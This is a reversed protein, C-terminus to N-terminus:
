TAFRAQREWTGDKGRRLVHQQDVYLLVTEGMEVLVHKFDQPDPIEKGYRYILIRYTETGSLETRAQQQAARLDADAQRLKRFSAVAWESKALQLRNLALEKTLEPSLKDKHEVGVLWHEKKFYDSERIGLAWYVAALAVLRSTCEKLDVRSTLSATLKGELNIYDVHAINPYRMKDKGEHKVMTPGRVGDWPMYGGGEVEASGIEEDTLPVIAPWPWYGGQPKKAPQFVRTADPAVAPWFSGLAACLKADEIFPTGLGYNALYLRSGTVSKVSDQAFDWGPDFVGNSGDPLRAFFPADAAPPTQKKATRDLPHSVISTVTDDSITFGAPLTINAAMRRDSLALPAICWASQRIPEPAEREWWETLDGQSFAPFFDPPAIGVYAPVNLAIEDAIQPCAAAVWGDGTFDIYHQARYGGEKLIDMLTREENLDELRGDPLQKHRANIYEPVTRALKPNLGDMYGIYDKFASDVADPVIQLSSFWLSGDERTFKGSVEYGLPKGQYMAKEFLPHAKPEILGPGYQADKTFGAIIEDRMVFPFNERDHQNWNTGYGGEEMFQHLKRLKENVFHADLSLDLNRGRICEPGAFLKHLPVWFQRDDDFEHPKGMPGFSPDPGECRMAIYAAFRTPLVRFAFPNADDLPAFDRRKADYLPGTTGTRATATRAFCLDAHKGQVTHNMSRYERCFVVVGLPRGGARERLEVLTPPRVGYVYSEVADLEALTPFAALPKGAGDQTVNASALAHFLLSLAPRGAEIGRRGEAAFDEFGPVGRNITTLTKALEPGLNAASLDLAGGSVKLLLARWGHPALRHCAAIVKELLSGDVSAGDRAWSSTGLFAGTIGLGALKIFERRDTSM